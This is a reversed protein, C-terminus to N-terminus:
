SAGPEAKHIVWDGEAIVDLNHEILVVSHGADV